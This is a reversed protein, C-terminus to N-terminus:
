RGIRRLVSAPLLLRLTGRPAPSMTRLRVLAMGAKTFKFADGEPAGLLLRLAASLHPQHGAFVPRLADMGRLLEVFALPLAGPLLREDVRPPALGLVEALIEATEVARALPSTVVGDLGLDLRKLGRAARLTKRRGEPTLPRDEETTGATGSAFAPGHRFLCVEIM